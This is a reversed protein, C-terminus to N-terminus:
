TTSELREVGVAERSGDFVMWFQSGISQLDLPILELPIETPVHPGLRVVGPPPPSLPLIEVCLWGPHLCMGARVKIRYRTGLSM